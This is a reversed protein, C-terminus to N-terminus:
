RPLIQSPAKLRASEGIPRVGRIRGQPRVREIVVPDPTVYTTTNGAVDRVELKLYIREPTRADFRWDYAHTNPLGSVITTWPGDSQEAFSLSIPRSPLLRDDAEWRIDLTREQEDGHPQVSVIRASPKTVDIGVWVEPLDGPKPTPSRAGGTTEIVMRFGYIGEEDVNV